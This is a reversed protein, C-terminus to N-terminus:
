IKGERRVTRVWIKKTQMKRVSPHRMKLSDGIEGMPMEIEEDKDIRKKEPGVGSGTVWKGIELESEM